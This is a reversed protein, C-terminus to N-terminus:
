DDEKKIWLAGYQEVLINDYYDAKKLLNEMVKKGTEINFYKDYILFSLVINQQYTSFLLNKMKYNERLLYEYIKDIGQKPLRCLHADGVIFGSNENYNIRITASGQEVEWNNKGKRSLRLDKGLEGILKEVHLAVGVPENDEEKFSEPLKVKAGCHPCYEGDINTQTVLNSCSSCRTVGQGKFELYEDLAVKLYHAPLSFGLNDGEAIKATNVGIVEGVKNVLPGGSNGPNIAADVQIYNLSKMLRSTNSVIGQTATYKLGYPHGIAMVQDGESLKPNESLKIEPLNAGDPVKLFALDHLTDTYFVSTMSKEIQRGDIVVEASGSVVHENTVILNYDKLYFGTGSGTATSIQIIVNKYLDITKQM